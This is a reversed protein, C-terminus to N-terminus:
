CCVGHEAFIHLLNLLSLCQCFDILLPTIVEDGVKVLFGEDYIQGGQEAYFLTKDLLVGCEQGSTVEQVFQKSHRLAIVKAVCTPFESFSNKFIM